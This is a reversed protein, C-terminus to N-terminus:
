CGGRPRAAGVTESKTDGYYPSTDFFNIGLDFAEKVAAVGEDEDIAQLLCRRRRCGCHHTPAQWLHVMRRRSLESAMTVGKFPTGVQFVGGLPSAGFGLVSVELGTKGLPRRPLKPLLLQANMVIGCRKLRQGGAPQTIDQRCRLITATFDLLLQQNDPNALAPHQPECRWHETSRAAKM